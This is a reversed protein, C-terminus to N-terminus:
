YGESIVITTVINGTTGTTGNAGSRGYLTSVTADYRTAVAQNSATAAAAGHEYIDKTTTATGLEPDVTTATGDGPTLVSRYSEVRGHRPAEISFEDTALTVGTETVTYTWVRTQRASRRTRTVTAAYPM